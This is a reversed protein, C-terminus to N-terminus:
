VCHECGKRKCKINEIENQHRDLTKEIWITKEIIIGIKTNLESVSNKLSALIGVSFLACFGLVGYFVWEVFKSFDM